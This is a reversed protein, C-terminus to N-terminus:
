TRMLVVEGPAYWISGYFQFVRFGFLRWLDFFGRRIFSVKDFTALSARNRRQVSAFVAESGHKKLYVVGAEVLASAVGSRRYYPHVALWLICGYKRQAVRFDILKAFGIIMSQEKCVLVKGENSAVSHSAFFRYFRPFSLDIVNELATKDREEATM